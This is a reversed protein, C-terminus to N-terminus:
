RERILIGKLMIFFERLIQKIVDMNLIIILFLIVVQGVYCHNEMHNCVVQIALLIYIVIDKVIKKGRNMSKSAKWYRIVWMAGFSLATALVAGVMGGIPILVINLIINIIASIISTAALIGNKKNAGLIGSLYGSLASFVISYVLLATGKWAEFFDKAYLIKALPINFIIIISAMIILAGFYYNYMKGMFTKSDDSKYEKVASISWAQAFIGVFINLISPIKSAVAYIGNQEIGLLATIFYRDLSSNVWWAIGNFILPVSFVIMEKRLEKDIQRVSNSDRLYSYVLIFGLLTPVIQGIFLSLLYGKVGGNLFVLLVINASITILTQLVSLIAVERIKDISRLFSMVLEGYVSSIYILIFFLLVFPETSLVEFKYSLYTLLTLIFTGFTIIKFGFRFIGQQESKLEIAYRFVADSICITFLFRSLSATTSVLDAIGYDATQLVSTYLPVLFFSLLKSGFSSITFLLTNKILYKGRSHSM